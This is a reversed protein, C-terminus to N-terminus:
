KTFYSTVNFSKLQCCPGFLSCLHCGNSVIAPKNNSAPESILSIQGKLCTSCIYHRCFWFLVSALTTIRSISVKTYSKGKTVLCANIKCATNPKLILSFIQKGTWLAVPKVIAPPPLEVKLRSFM